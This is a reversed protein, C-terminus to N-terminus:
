TQYGSRILISFLTPPSPTHDVRQFTECLRKPVDQITIEAVPVVSALDFM